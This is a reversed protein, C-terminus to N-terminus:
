KKPPWVDLQPRDFGTLVFHEGDRDIAFRPWFISVAMVYHFLGSWSSLMLMVDVSLKELSEKEAQQVGEKLSRKVHNGHLM